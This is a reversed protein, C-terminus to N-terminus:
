DRRALLRRDVAGSRGTAGPTTGDTRGRRECTPGSWVRRMLELQEEFSRAREHFSAPAAHFDDERAGVGIGVTLRGGSLADLTAVQKALVGGRRLPAILITSMVRIRETVAAAASLTIMPEYNPYVLRDLIGLSSFPGSDARRAWDLVLSGSTGPITAPLGIGIDM